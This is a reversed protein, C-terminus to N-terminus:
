EDRLILAPDTRAALLAPFWAATVSIVVAVAVAITLWMKNAIGAWAAPGSVNELLLGGWTGLVLGFAYGLLGGALGLVFAKALFLLFITGCPTGLTRLVGCEQRRLRAERFASLGVWGVAIALMTPALLDALAQRHTRLATRKRREFEVAEKAEQTIRSRAEYRALIKSGMEVIQTDPLVQEIERRLKTLDAGACLCQLALIANIVGPKGLLEQAESLHVWATIDDKSGREAHCRHVTFERGMLRVSDGVALGLPEHLHYGLVITGPPVPQVLPKRPNKAWNPVEGRTGVLIITRGNREAWEIRQQLTPLFHRVMIIGSEALRDVYDDPM